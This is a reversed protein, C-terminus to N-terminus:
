SWSVWSVSSMVAMPSVSRLVLGGQDLKRLGRGGAYINVAVARARRRGPPLERGGVPGFGDGPQVGPDLLDVPGAVALQGGGEGGAPPRVVQAWVAQVDQGVQPGDEVELGFAGEPDQRGLGFALGADQGGQGGLQDGLGGAAAV